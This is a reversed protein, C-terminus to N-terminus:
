VFGAEILAYGHAMVLHREGSGGCVRSWSDVILQPSEGARRLEIRFGGYMGPIPFWIMPSERELLLCLPPFEINNQEVLDDTRGLVVKRLQAELKAIHVESVQHMPAPQLVEMLHESKARRATELPTERRSNRVMRSAGLRILQETVEVSAGNRAAQHLPTYRAKGQIRPHNIQDPKESLMRLLKDWEGAKAADSIANNEELYWGSLSESNRSGNWETGREGDILIRDAEVWESVYRSQENTEPSKPKKSSKPCSEWLKKLTELPPNSGSHRSLWCGVVTGTRGVGGWCHVYVSRGACLEEDIHDLIAVTDRSSKPVSVDRIPHSFRQAKGNSVEGLISEYSKLGDRTDTLDIFSSIGSDFMDSLRRRSSDEDITRPYEGALFRGPVVWYSNLLPKRIDDDM